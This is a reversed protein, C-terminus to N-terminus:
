TFIVIFYKCSFFFYASEERFFYGSWDAKMGMEYTFYLDTGIDFFPLMVNFFIDKFNLIFFCISNM